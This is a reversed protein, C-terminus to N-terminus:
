IIKNIHGESFSLVTPPFFFVNTTALPQPQSSLQSCFPSLFTQPTILVDYNHHPNYSKYSNRLVWLVIYQFPSKESYIFWVEITFFFLVHRVPASLKPASTVCEPGGKCLGLWPVLRAGRVPVQSPLIRHPQGLGQWSQMMTHTEDQGTRSKRKRLTKGADWRKRSMGAEEREM